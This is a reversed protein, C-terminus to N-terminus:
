VPRTTSTKARGDREDDSWIENMERWVKSMVRDEAIETANMRGDLARMDWFEARCHEHYPRETHALM